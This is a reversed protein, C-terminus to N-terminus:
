KDQARRELIVATLNGCAFREREVFGELSRIQRPHEYITAVVPLSEVFRSYPPHRDVESGSVWVVVLVAYVPVLYRYSQTDIYAGSVPFLIIISLLFLPFFAEAISLPRRNVLRAILHRRTWVYASMAVIAPLLAAAPIALGETTPTKMGLVIPVINGALDPAAAILEPLRGRRAPSRPLQVLISYLVAPLYGALFALVPGRLNSANAATIRRFSAVIVALGAFAIALQLLKQPSRAAISVVGLHYTVGGTVFAVIAMVVEITSLAALVRVAIPVGSNGPQPRVLYRILDRASAAKWFSTTTLWIVVLPALYLMVIQHVWLAVGTVFAIWNLLIRSRRQEWDVYLLLVITGLLMMLVYEASASLSWFVLTVSKLTAVGSGFLSFVGSAVYVEPVGKYPQGWLFVPFEGNLIHRAMLGEVAEDSDFPIRQSLLFPLRAAM